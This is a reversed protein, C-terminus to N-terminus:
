IMQDVQTFTVSRPRSLVVPVLTGRGVYASDWSLLIVLQIHPSQLPTLTSGLMEPGKTGPVTHSLFSM